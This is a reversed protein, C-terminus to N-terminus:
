TSSFCTCTSLPNGTRRDNLPSLEKTLSSQIIISLLRLFIGCCATTEDSVDNSPTTLDVSGDNLSKSVSAADREDPFASLGKHLAWVWAGPKGTIKSPLGDAGTTQCSSLPKKRTTKLQCVYLNPYSDERRGPILNRNSCISFTM